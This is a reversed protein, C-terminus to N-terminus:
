RVFFLRCIWHIWVLIEVCNKVSRIHISFMEHFLLFGLIAWNQVFSSNSMDVDWVGGPSGDWMCDGFGSVITSALFHKSVPAQYLQRRLSEAMAQCVCLHISEALCQVSCPTGLPPTPSLVSPSSPTQLGYSFCYRALLSGSSGPVLGGVLSYLHLSGHSWGCIYCLVSQSWHSPLNKPRLTNLSGTYSLALVPLHAQTPHSLPSWFPLGLFPFVNSIYIFFIDLKFFYRSLPFFLSRFRRLQSAMKYLWASKRNPSPSVLWVM